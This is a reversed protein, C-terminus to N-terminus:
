ETSGAPTLGAAQLRELTEPLLLYDLLEQAANMQRGKIVVAAQTIPPYDAAPVVVFTGEAKLQPTLATTMSIFGADANGSEAFQAAQAINEAVALRSSLQNWLGLHDLASKAAAGYPAHDPNAIALRRLAPNQLSQMSIPQLPSGNRAWLVLTGHAYILPKTNKALGADIVKQAFGINASLFLNFPAHNLIQTALTASAGYSVVVHVGHSSEYSQLIPPLVPELDAAAAVTLQAHAACCLGVAMAALLLTKGFMGLKTM